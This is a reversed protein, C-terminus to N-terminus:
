AISGTFSGFGLNRFYARMAMTSEAKKMFAEAEEPTFGSLRITYETASNADCLDDIVEVFQEWATEKELVLEKEICRQGFINYKASKHNRNNKRKSNKM